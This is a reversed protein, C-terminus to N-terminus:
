GRNVWAFLAKALGVVIGVLLLPGLLWAFPDTVAAFAAMLLNLAFYGGIFALLTKM